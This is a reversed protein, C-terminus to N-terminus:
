LFSRFMEKIGWARATKLCLFKIQDFRLAQSPSLNEIGYLWLQRTGRLTDDGAKTLRAHEQKRVDNVAENM